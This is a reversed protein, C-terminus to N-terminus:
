VQAKRLIAIQGAHYLDHQIIGHAMVYFSYTKGQVTDQLRAGDFARLAARLEARAARVDATTRRWAEEGTGPVAPWDEAPTPDYREGRLRRTVVRDWVAIHMALEWISHGGALPRATAQVATVGTLVADVPSGHWADGSGARDLLDVIRTIEDV